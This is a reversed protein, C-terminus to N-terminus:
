VNSDPIKYVRYIRPIDCGDTQIKLQWINSNTQRSM